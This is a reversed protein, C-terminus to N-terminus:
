HKSSNLSHRASSDNLPFQFLIRQADIGGAALIYLAPQIGYIYRAQVEILLYVSFASFLLFAPLLSQLSTRSSRRSCVFGFLGLILTSISCFSEYKVAYDYLYPHAEHLYGLPWFLASGKWLVALKDEFLQLLDRPGATQLEKWFLAKQAATRDMGQATLQSIAQNAAESYQGRSEQSFGYVFKLWFNGTSLGQSNIGLAAVGWSLLGFLLFYAGLFCLLCLGCRSFHTRFPRQLGGFLCYAGVAVLVMLADPRLFNALATLLGAAAFRVPLCRFPSGSSQPPDEPIGTLLYIGLFTLFTATHQNTLVSVMALPLASVCYFLSAAQAASEQFFRRAILYVLVTVGSAALCNVLKILLVNDWLRLLIGQFIVQGTQGAWNQFYGWSQFSYDGDRFLQSAELLTAFDSEPPPQIMLVTGLRLLFALAFLVLSFRPIEVRRCLLVVGLGACLALMAVISGLIVWSLALVMAWFFIWHLLRLPPAHPHSDDPLLSSHKM